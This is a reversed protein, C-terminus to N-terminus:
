FINIFDGHGNIKVKLTNYIDNANYEFMDNLKFKIGGKNNVKWKTNNHNDLKYIVYYTKIGYDKEFLNYKKVLNVRDEHVDKKTSLFFSIPKVQIAQEINDKQCKIDVGYRADIKGDYFSCKCGMKEELYKIISLERLKGEYTETIIHCLTDNFYIDYDYQGNKSVENGKEMYENVMLVFEDYTLGRKWISLNRHEQAYQFYKNFFDEESRPNLIKFLNSCNGISTSPAYYHKWIERINEDKGLIKKAKITNEKNYCFIQVQYLKVM